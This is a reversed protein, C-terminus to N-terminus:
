RSAARIYRLWFEPDDKVSHFRAPERQIRCGNAPDRRLGAVADALAARWRAQPPTRLMAMRLAMQIADETM